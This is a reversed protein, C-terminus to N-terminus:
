ARALWRQVNEVVADPTFGLHEAIASAPASAGFRDLGIRLSDEGLLECWPGVRAAEIVVRRAAKPIVAERYTAPQSRFAEVCPMSVVRAKIGAATLRARTERALVVESGTAVIALDPAGGEADELVYGGRWIERRDFAARSRFLTTYPFLTSRPPRRIM